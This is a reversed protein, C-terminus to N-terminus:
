GAGIFEIPNKKVEPELRYQSSDLLSPPPSIQLSDPINTKGEKGGRRGGGTLGRNLDLNIM